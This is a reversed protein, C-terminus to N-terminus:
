GTGLKGKDASSIFQEVTMDLIKKDHAALASIIRVKTKGDIHHVAQRVTTM